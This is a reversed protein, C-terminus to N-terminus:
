AITMYISLVHMDSNGFIVTSNKLIYPIVHMWMNCYEFIEYFESEKLCTWWLSDFLGDEAICENALKKSEIICCCVSIIKATDAMRYKTRGKKKIETASSKGHGTLCSLLMSKYNTCM